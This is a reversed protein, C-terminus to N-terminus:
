CSITGCLRTDAVLRALTTPGPYGLVAAGGIVYSPTAVIGLSAALRMQRGLMAQIEPGDAVREVERRDLGLRGAADLARLGDTRGPVAFLADTLRHATGAGKLKLV